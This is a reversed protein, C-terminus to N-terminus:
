RSFATARLLLRHAKAPRRRAHRPPVQRFLGLIPKRTGINTRLTRMRPSIHEGRLQHQQGQGQAGRLDRDRDQHRRSQGRRAAHGLGPRLGEGSLAAPDPRGGAPDADSRRPQRGEARHYGRDGEASHGEARPVRGQDLLPMERVVFILTYKGSKPPSEDLYYTVDSFWKTGMLSKLDAEVKDQDLPQGVRSLLKPKIKDPTITANGEFEIKLDDRRSVERRLEHPDFIPRLWCYGAPWFSSGRPGRTTGRSTRDLM